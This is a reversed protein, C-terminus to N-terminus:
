ISCKLEHWLAAHLGLLDKATGHHQNVVGIDIHRITQQAVLMLKCVHVATAVLVVTSIYIYIYM